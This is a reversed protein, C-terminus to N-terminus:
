DEKHKVRLITPGTRDCSHCKWRIVQDGYPEKSTYPNSVLIHTTSDKCIPCPFERASGIPPLGPAEDIRGSAVFAEAAEITIRGSAIGRLFEAALEALKAAEESISNMNRDGTDKSFPNTPHSLVLGVIIYLM